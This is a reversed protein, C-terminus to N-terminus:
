RERAVEKFGRILPTLLFEILRRKGVKVEATVTMGPSLPVNKDVVYISSRELAIYAAYVWGRTEDLVADDSLHTIEGEILGYKTFPFADVKLSVAQHEKVFGIDKNEIWAEAVLLPHSPVISMLPQASTVVGGITHVRLQNVVGTVPARLYHLAKRKAAKTLEKSHAAASNELDTLESLLGTHYRAKYIKREERLSEISANAMLLRSAARKREEVQEIRERELDLWQVRAALNNDVLTKVSDTQETILPITADLQNLHSRSVALDALHRRELNLSSELTARYETLAETLLFQQRRVNASSAGSPPSFRAESDPNAIAALLASIRRHELRIALLAHELCEVEASAVTTDLEVLLQGAMVAEGELVLSRKVIGTEFPQVVKVRDSPIIKGHGIAVIDVQGVVAWIVSLTFVGIIFWVVTHGLPSPPSEQIALAAPLFELDAPDARPQTMMM